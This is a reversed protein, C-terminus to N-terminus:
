KQWAAQEKTQLKDFNTFELNKLIAWTKSDTKREHSSFTLPSSFENKLFEPSSQREHFMMVKGLYIMIIPGRKIGKYYADNLSSLKKISTTKTLASLFIWEGVNHM